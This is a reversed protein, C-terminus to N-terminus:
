DAQLPAMDLVDGTAVFVLRADVATAPLGLLACLARRYSEVQSRYHDQTRAGAVDTKFDILLARDEWIAVRDFRGRLLQGDERLAFARERWLERAGNRRLMSQLSASRLAERFQDIWQNITGDSPSLALCRVRQRLREDSPVGDEEDAFGVCEFWDHFALGRNRAAAGSSRLLDAGLVSGDGQAASPSTSPWARRAGGKPPSSLRIRLPPVDTSTTSAPEDEEPEFWDRSGAEFLLQDGAETLEVDPALAARLLDAYLRQTKRQPKPRIIMHVANRARTLAVYLVCLDEYRCRTREQDYAQTLQPSLRRSNQNAFPLVASPLDAETERPLMVPFVSQPRNDLEPLVVTDFELGKAAHITMVRVPASATREVGTTEVFQVFDMPRVTPEYQYTLEILQQLQRSGESDCSSALQMAWRGILATPGIEILERRLRHSVQAANRTAAAATLELIPGLPSTAVHYAAALDGPRDALVFASLIAAVVPSGALSSGGEGSVPLAPHGGGDRRFEHLLRAAMINTRVLVAISGSPHAEHLEAVKRAVYEEHSTPPDIDDIETTVVSTPAEPWEQVHEDLELEEEEPPSAASSRLEVCGPMSALMGAATHEVFDRAFQQAARRDAVEDPLGDNQSITHFVRNVLDMIVAVSRYSTAMDTAAIDYRREIEAFLAANGGRWGYIAQKIDGVVFLTDGGSTPAAVEDAFPQLAQWQSSSTDQFEDLLLHDIGVDLRHHARSLKDQLLAPLERALKWTLDSFMLLRRGRRLETYTEDFRSLLEYSALHRQRLEELVVASAHRVLPAFADILDQPIPNRAYRGDSNRDYCRVVLGNNLFDEWREEAGAYLSAGFAKEWTRNPKAAATQPLTDVMGALRRIAESREQESLAEPIELQDWLEVEPVLRWVDHLKLILTDYAQGVSRAPRQRHLRLFLLSLNQASTALVQIITEQRLAAIEPSNEAAMVPEVPLDLEWRFVKAIRHFFSDITSVSLRHLSGVLVGILRHCDASTLGPAALLSALRHREEDSQLARLLREIISDLIEGAAKRTFTTALIDAPDAGRQLLRLYHNVLQYTKGAGASARIVVHALDSSATM